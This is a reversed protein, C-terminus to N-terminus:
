VRRRIRGDLGGATKLLSVAVFATKTASSTAMDSVPVVGVNGTSVMDVDAGSATAQQPPGAGSPALAHQTRSASTLAAPPGPHPQPARAGVGDVGGRARDPHQQPRGMSEVGQTDPQSRERLPHCPM